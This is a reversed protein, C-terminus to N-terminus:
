KESTLENYYKYNEKNYFIQSYIYKTDLFFHKESLEELVDDMRMRKIDFLEHFKEVIKKDRAKKLEPNRM